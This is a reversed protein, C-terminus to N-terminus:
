HRRRALGWVAALLLLAPVPLAGRGGSQSCTCGYSTGALSSPAEDAEARPSFPEPADRASPDDWPLSDGAAAARSEDARAGELDDLAVGAEDRRRPAVGAWQRQWWDEVGLLATYRAVLGFHRGTVVAEDVLDAAEDHGVDIWRELSALACGGFRAPAVRAGVGTGPEPVEVDQEVALPQGDPGVGTLELRAPGSGTVTAVVEVTGGPLLRAVPCHLSRAVTPGTLAAWVGALGAGAQGAVLEATRDPLAEVDPAARWTGGTAEALGQLLTRDAAPGVAVGHVTLPREAEALLSLARELLLEPDREGLTPPGDLLVVVDAPEEGPEASALDFAAALGAETHCPGWAGLAEVWAAARARLEDTVPELAPSLTTAVDAFAVLGLRDDPGLEALAADLARVLARHRDGRMSGSVEVALVLRRGAGSLGTPLPPAWLAHLYTRGDGADWAALDAAAESVAAEGSDVEVWEAGEAGCRIRVRRAVEGGRETRAGALRLRLRAPAEESVPRARVQLRGNALREVLLLVPEDRWWSRRAYSGTAQRRGAVEAPLWEGESLQLEAGALLVGAPLQVQLVAEYVDEHEPEGPQPEEAPPTPALALEVTTLSRPGEAHTEAEASVVEAWTSVLRRPLPDEVYCCASLPALLALSL